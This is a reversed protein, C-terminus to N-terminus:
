ASKEKDAIVSLYRTNLWCSKFPKRVPLGNRDHTILCIALVGTTKGTFPNVFPQVNIVTGTWRARFSSKVSLGVVVRKGESRASRTM